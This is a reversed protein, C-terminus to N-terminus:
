NHKKINDKITELKDKLADCNSMKELEIQQKELPLIEVKDLASSLSTLSDKIDQHVEKDLEGLEEISAVAQKIVEPLAEVLTKQIPREELVKHLKARDKLWLELEQVEDSNLSAAVHPAVRDVDIHFTAVTFSAKEDSKSSLRVCKVTDGETIFEM